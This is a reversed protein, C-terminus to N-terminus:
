HPYHCVRGPAVQSTPAFAGGGLQLVMSQLEPLDYLSPELEPWAAELRGHPWTSPDTLDVQPTCPLYSGTLRRALYLYTGLYAGNSGM